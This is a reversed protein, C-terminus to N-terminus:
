VTEINVNLKRMRSLLDADLASDTLLLDIQQLDCIKALAIRGFKTHDVAVVSKEAAALMLTKVGVESFNANTAGGMLDVGDVGIFAIDVHTSRIFNEPLSGVLEQRGRRRMGGTVIM